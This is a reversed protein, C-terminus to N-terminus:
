FSITDLCNIIKKYTHKTFRSRLVEIIMDINPPIAGKNKEKILEEVFAEAIILVKALPSIDDKYDLTFGMGNTTGHHQLIIADAGMPCRPFTKVMESALRAHNIV